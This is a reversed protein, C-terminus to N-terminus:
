SALRGGCFFAPTYSGWADGDSGTLPVSCKNASYVVIKLSYLRSFSLSVNVYIRTVFGASGLGLKLTSEFPLHAVPNM